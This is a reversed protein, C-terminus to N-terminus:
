TPHTTVTDYMYDNEGGFIISVPIRACVKDLDQVPKTAGDPEKYMTQFHLIITTYKVVCAPVYWKKRM